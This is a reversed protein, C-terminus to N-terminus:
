REIRDRVEESEINEEVYEDDPVTPRDRDRDVVCLFGLPEDEDAKFQHPTDPDVYVVDHLGIQHVNDGLIVEGSGRIVVVSHPHKHYEFTTYGGPQVEFYRFEASLAPESEEGKGLLTYRHVGQYISTDKKYERRPVSDWEFDDCKIVKSRSSM